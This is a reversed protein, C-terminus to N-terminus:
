QSISHNAKSVFLSWESMENVKNVWELNEIGIKCSM